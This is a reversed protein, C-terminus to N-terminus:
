IKWPWSFTMQHSEKTTWFVQGIYSFIIFLLLVSCQLVCCKILFAETTNILLHGIIRSFVNYRSSLSQSQLNNHEYKSVKLQFLALNNLLEEVSFSNSNLLSKCTYLLSICLTKSRSHGTGYIKWYTCSIGLWWSSLSYQSYLDCPSAM